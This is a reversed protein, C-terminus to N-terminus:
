ALDRLNAYNVLLKFCLGDQDGIRREIVPPVCDLGLLESLEYAAPEFIAADRYKKALGFDIM